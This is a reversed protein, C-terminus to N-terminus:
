THKRHYVAVIRWMSFAFLAIFLLHTGIWFGLVNAPRAKAIDEMYYLCIKDKDVVPSYGSVDFGYYKGNDDFYTATYDSAHFKAEICVSNQILHYEEMHRYCSSVFMLFFFIALLIWIDAQFRKEKKDDYPQVPNRGDFGDYENRSDYYNAM